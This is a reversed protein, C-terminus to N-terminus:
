FLTPTKPKRAALDLLNRNQGGILAFHFPVRKLQEIIDEQRRYSLISANKPLSDVLSEPVFYVIKAWKAESEIFDIERLMLTLDDEFILVRGGHGFTKVQLDDGVFVPNFHSTGQMGTVSFGIGSEKLFPVLRNLYPLFFPSILKREYYEGDLIFSTEFLTQEIIQVPSDAKLISAPNAVADAYPADQAFFLWDNKRIEWLRQLSTELAGTMVFVRADTIMAEALALTVSDCAVPTVSRQLLHFRVLRLLAANLDEAQLWAIEPDIIEEKGEYLVAYAGNAVAKPIDRPDFAVFLDGRRIRAADIEISEIRSVAPDSRLTAGTLSLLNELRM